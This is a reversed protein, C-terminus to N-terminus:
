ELVPKTYNFLKKDAQFAEDILDISRQSYYEKFHHDNRGSSNVHPLDADVGIKDCIISFDKELDEM